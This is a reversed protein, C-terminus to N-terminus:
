VPEALWLATHDQTLGEGERLKLRGMQISSTGQGPTRDPSGLEAVQETRALPPHPSPSPSSLKELVMNARVSRGQGRRAASPVQRPSSNWHPSPVQTGVILRQLWSCSQRSPLSSAPQKCPAHLQPCLPVDEKFFLGSCEWAGSLASNPSIEGRDRFQTKGRLM